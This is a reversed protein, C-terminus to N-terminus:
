LGDDSLYGRCRSGWDGRGRGVDRCPRLSSSSDSAESRGKNSATCRGSGAAFGRAGESASRRQQQGKEYAKKSTHTSWWTCQPRFVTRPVRLQNTCPAGHSCPQLVAHAAHFRAGSAGDSACKPKTSPLLVLRAKLSAVNRTRGSLHSKAHGSAVCLIKLTNCPSGMFTPRGSPCQNSKRNMPRDVAPLLCLTGSGALSQVCALALRSGLRWAM